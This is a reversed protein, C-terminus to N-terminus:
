LQNLHVHTCDQENVELLDIRYLQNDKFNKKVRTDLTLTQKNQQKKLLFPPSAVDLPLQNTAPRRIVSNWVLKNSSFVVYM